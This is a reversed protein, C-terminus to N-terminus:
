IPGDGLSHTFEPKVDWRWRGSLPLFFVSIISSFFFIDLCGRGGGVALVTPGQGVIIWILLVDLLPLKGLVMAGGSRGRFNPINKVLAKLTM